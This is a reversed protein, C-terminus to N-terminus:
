LKYGKGGQRRWTAEQFLAEDEKYSGMVYQFVTTIDKRLRREGALVLKIRTDKM